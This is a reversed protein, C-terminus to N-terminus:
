KTQEKVIKVIALLDQKLINFNFEVDKLRKNQEALFYSKQQVEWLGLKKNYVLVDKDQPNMNEKVDIIVKM